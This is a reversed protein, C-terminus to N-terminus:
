RGVGREILGLRCLVSRVWGLARNIRFGYQGQRLLGVIGLLGVISFGILRRLTGDRVSEELYENTSHYAEQLLFLPIHWLTYFLVSLVILAVWPAKPDHLVSYSGSASDDGMWHTESIGKIATNDKM